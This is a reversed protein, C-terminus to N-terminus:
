MVSECVVCSMLDRLHMQIAIYAPLLRQIILQSRQYPWCRQDRVHIPVGSLSCVNQYECENVSQLCRFEQYLRSHLTLSGLVTNLWEYYKNGNSMPWREYESIPM